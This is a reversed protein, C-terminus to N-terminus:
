RRAPPPRRAAQPATRGALLLATAIRLAFLALAIAGLLGSVAGLRILATRELGIGAGITALALLHGGAHLRLPMQPSLESLLMPAGSLGSLHVSALFPLIRQLIGTLFSLLWGCILIFGILAPANAPALGAQAAASLILALILALRGTRILLFSVGLRRRMSGREARRMLWLHILAAGLGALIGAREWPEAGTRMAAGLALIALAALGLGAWGPGAPLARSLVFMPILVLSFGAALMGMFGFLALLMHLRVIAARQSLFGGSFDWILVLGLGLLGALGLLAAWGHGAVVAVPGGRSLNHASLLGFVALGAAALAGGMQMAALGPGGGGMYMGLGLLAVGPAFLWFSLAVPWIRALARGSIVPLLQYGAGMATMALVGLTALHLAALVPGPGGAYGALEEAAGILVAWAAIHFLTAGLFFRFPLSAPLLRQRAGGLFGAGSQGSM